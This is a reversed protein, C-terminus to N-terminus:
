NKRRQMADLARYFESRPIRETIEPEITGNEASHGCLLCSLDRKENCFAMASQCKPCEYKTAGYIYGIDGPECKHDKLLAMAQEKNEVRIPGWSCTHCVVQHIM